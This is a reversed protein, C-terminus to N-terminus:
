ARVVREYSFALSSRSASSILRCRHFTTGEHGLDFLPPGSSLQLFKAVRPLEPGELRGNNGDVVLAVVAFGASIEPRELYVITQSV